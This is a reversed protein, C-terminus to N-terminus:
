PKLSRIDDWMKEVDATELFDAFAKLSYAHMVPKLYLYLARQDPYSLLGRVKEHYAPPMQKQDLFYSFLKQLEDPDPNSVSRELAQNSWEELLFLYDEFYRLNLRENDTEEAPHFDQLYAKIENIEPQSLSWVALHAPYIFRNLCILAHHENAFWIFDPIEKYNIRMPCFCLVLDRGHNHSQDSFFQINTLVKPLEAGVRIQAYTAPTLSDISVSFHVNGRLALARIRENLITGNTQIVINCKPNLAIIREWIEYYVSISLPEGGIFRATHLHPIFADVQALFAADFIPPRLETAHTFSSSSLGSCMICKLNCENSLRFDLMSPMKQEPFRDFMVFSGQAFRQQLVDDQCLGCGHSLDNKGLYKRLKRIPGGTWIEM